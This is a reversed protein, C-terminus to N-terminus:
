FSQNPEARICFRYILLLVDQQLFFQLLNAFHEASPYLLCLVRRFNSQFFSRSSRKEAVSRSLSVGVNSNSNDPNWSKGNVGKDDFDGLNVLKGDHNRSTREAGKRRQCCCEMSILCTM